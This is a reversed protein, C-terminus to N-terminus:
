SGSITIAVGAAAFLQEALGPQDSTNAKLAEYDIAGSKIKAIAESHWDSLHVDHREIYGRNRGITKLTFCVAWGEGNLIARHLSSEANDLMAEREDDLTQKVTPYKNVYNALTQRTCGLARAAASVNGKAAQIARIIVEATYATAM